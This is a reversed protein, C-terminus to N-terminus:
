TQAGATRAMGLIIDSGITPGNNTVSLTGAMLTQLTIAGSDAYTKGAGDRLEITLAGTGTDLATGAAMTIVANGPDRQAGVVGNALQDNAILTLAGNDTTISANLLISRGAQLTLAGGQGGASVTIPSNVTIDNSAQLVVATGTNLTRALFDPTITLTQGQGLAYTLRNPDVLGATVRGGAETVFAALFTQSTPNEGVFGLSANAAKGVLSNQPTITGNGDLTQ